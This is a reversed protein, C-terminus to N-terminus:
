PLPNPYQTTVPLVISMCTECGRLSTYHQSVAGTQPCCVATGKPCRTRSTSPMPTIARFSAPSQTSVDIPSAVVHHLHLLCLIVVLYMVIVYRFAQSSLIRINSVTKLPSFPSQHRALLSTSIVGVSKTQLTLSNAAVVAAAMSFHELCLLVILSLECVRTEREADAKM